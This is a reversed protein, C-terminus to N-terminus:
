TLGQGQFSNSLNGVGFCVAGHNRGKGSAVSSLARHGTPEKRGSVCFSGVKLIQVLLTQCVFLKRRLSSLMNSSGDLGLLRPCWITPILCAPPGQGAEPELVSCLWPLLFELEVRLM